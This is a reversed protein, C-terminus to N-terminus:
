AEVTWSFTLRPHHARERAIAREMERIQSKHRKANERLRRSGM